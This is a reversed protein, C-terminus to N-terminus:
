APRLSATRWWGEANCHQCRGWVRDVDMKKGDREEIHSAHRSTEIVKGACAACTPAGKEDIHCETRDMSPMM